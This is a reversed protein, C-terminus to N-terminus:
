PKVEKDLTLAATAEFCHPLVPLFPFPSIFEPSMLTHQSQQTPKCVMGLLQMCIIMHKDNKYGKRSWSVSQSCRQRCGSRASRCPLLSSSKLTWVTNPVPLQPRTEKALCMAVPCTQAIFAKDFCCMSLFSCTVSNSLGETLKFVFILWAPQKVM